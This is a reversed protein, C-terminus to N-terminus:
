ACNTESKFTTETMKPPAPFDVKFGDEKNVYLDWDQAFVTGSMLLVLALMLPTMRM